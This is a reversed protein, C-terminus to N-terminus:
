TNVGARGGNKEATLVSDGLFNLPAIDDNDRGANAM